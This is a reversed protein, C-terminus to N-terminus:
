APGGIVAGMQVEQDVTIHLGRGCVGVGHVFSKVAVRLTESVM